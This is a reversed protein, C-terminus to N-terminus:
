TKESSLNLQSVIRWENYLIQLLCMDQKLMVKVVVISRLSSTGTNKFSYAMADAVPNQWPQVAKMVKVEKFPINLTDAVVTSRFRLVASHNNPISDQAEIIRECDGRLMAGALLGAMGAGIMIM